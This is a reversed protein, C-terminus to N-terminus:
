QRPPTTTNLQAWCADRMALGEPSLKPWHPDDGRGPMPWWSACPGRIIRHGPSRPVVALVAAISCRCAEATESLNLGARHARLIAAELEAMRSLMDDLHTRM